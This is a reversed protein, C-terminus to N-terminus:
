RFYIQGNDEIVIQLEKNESMIWEGTDNTIIQENKYKIIFELTTEKSVFIQKRVMQGTKLDRIVCSNADYNYNITLSDIDITGTNTIRLPKKIMENEIDDQELSEKPEEKSCGFIAFIITIICFSLLCRRNKGFIRLVM